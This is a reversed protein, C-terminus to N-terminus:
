LHVYGATASWTGMYVLEFAVLQAYSFLRRTRTQKEVLVKPGFQESVDISTQGAKEDVGM